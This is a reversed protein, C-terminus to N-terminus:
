EGFGMQASPCKLRELLRHLQLTLAAGYNKIFFDLAFPIVLLTELM